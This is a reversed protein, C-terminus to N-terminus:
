ILDLQNTSGFNPRFTSMLIKKDSDIKLNSFAKKKKSTNNLKIIEINTNNQAGSPSECVNRDISNINSKISTVRNSSITNAVNIQSPCYSNVSDISSTYIHTDFRVSKNIQYNPSVTLKLITKFNHQISSHNHNSIPSHNDVNCSDYTSGIIMTTNKVVLRSKFNPKNSCHEIYM